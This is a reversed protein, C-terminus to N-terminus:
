GPIPIAAGYPIRVVIRTNFFALFRIVRKGVGKRGGPVGEYERLSGTIIYKHEHFVYM